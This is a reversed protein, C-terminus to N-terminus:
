PLSQLKSLPTRYEAFTSAAEVGDKEGNYEM